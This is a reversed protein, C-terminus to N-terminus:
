LRPEVEERFFDFFGQQDDGMQSIFIEDFGAEIYPRIAEVHRQADPGCAFQEKVTDHDVLESAEDFMAPTALEQALSGPVASNRWLRHAREVATGEDRDWCVKVAGILPAKGGNKRYTSLVEDDPTTTVFGDAVDAAIEAAKTGFASMLVPIPQEPASYLRARDVMYRAGRHSILKGTWLQRMVEIAEVLLDLREDPSPWRDGLIHENLNEGTGVGLRFRGDLLLSSSAAAQAIVAPHTRITPCTVGTTVELATTAGIAGIVSWVFPSEGQEDLWPHFHDSIFVSSFGASEALQAQHVLAKPGHEESSLFYGFTTM